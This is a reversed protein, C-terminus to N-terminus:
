SESRVHVPSVAAYFVRKDRLISRRRYPNILSREEVLDVERGFLDALERRLDLLDWASWPATPAFQVLLDADSEPGFDGRAMSGFFLWNVFRGGDASKASAQTPM